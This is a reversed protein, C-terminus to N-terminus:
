RIAIIIQLIYRPYLASSNNSGHFSLDIVINDRFPLLLYAAYVHMAIDKHISLIWINSQFRRISWETGLFIGKGNSLFNFSNKARM